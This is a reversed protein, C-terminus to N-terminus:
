ECLVTWANTREICVIITIFLSFERCDGRLLASMAFVLTSYHHVAQVVLVYFAGSKLEYLLLFYPYLLALM